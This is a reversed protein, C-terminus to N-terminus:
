DEQERECDTLMEVILCEIHRTNWSYDENKKKSNGKMNNIMADRLISYSEISFTVSFCLCYLDEFM